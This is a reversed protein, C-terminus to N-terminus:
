LQSLNFVTGVSYMLVSLVASLSFLQAEHEEGRGNNSKFVNLDM